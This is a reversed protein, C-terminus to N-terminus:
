NRFCKLFCGIGDVDDDPATFSFDSRKLPPTGPGASFIIVGNQVGDMDGAGGDTIEFSLSTRDDSFNAIIESESWGSVFDYHYWRTESPVSRSFYVTLNASDGPSSVRIRGNLVGLPLTDPKNASDPTSDPSVAAAGEIAADENEATLCIVSDGTETNVCKFNPQGGDGVGNQDLDTATHVEQHDPVGNENGDEGPGTTFRSGDAWGSMNGSDDYFRARFYYTEEPNLLLLPAPLGTLCASSLANLVPNSFDPKTSIQWHTATHGTNINSVFDGATLTITVPIRIDGHVPSILAPKEIGPATDLCDPVGNGDGDLDSLGCGCHGPATKMPDNPCQDNCDPTGDKDTDVDSVGCGCHGPETKDPDDPCGDASDPVDDGDSDPGERCDAIGNGNLDTDAIGCGCQGPATKGPDDPCGDESDITGDGDSDTERSELCDIVGNNDADIDPTGCGCIGPNLKFGDAPCGDCADGSGDGDMDSQDPNAITLCNDVDDAIGDGDTDMIMPTLQVDLLTSGGESVEVGTLTVPLYGPASITMDFVGPEQVMRYAGNPRSLASASASTTIRVGSVPTQGGSDTVAGKIYGVFPGIPPYIQFEYGTGTGFLTDDGNRIRIYYVGDLNCPWDWNFLIEGAPVNRSDLITGAAERLEIVPECLPGIGSMKFTYNKGAVGYFSIWDEDGADHFNHRQPRDDNIVIGGARDLADDDEFIDPGDSRFVTLERAVSANGLNDLVFISVQYEGYWPFNGYIGEYRQNQASWIMEVMDQDGSEAPPTVIAYMRDVAGIVSVGGAWFEAPTQGSLSIDPSVQNIRPDEAAMRIGFGIVFDAAVAGDIRENGVGDGSDDLQPLGDRTVGTFFGVTNRASLFADRVTGGNLVSKFFFSSFSIGPGGFLATRDSATGSIVIRSQGAAPTMAPLFAGAYDADYILVANGPIASELTDIWTDLDAASVTETANIHFISRDGPGILHIVMDQTQGIDWGTIAYELNAASPSGDIGAMFTVPSMFYVSEDAYGQQIFARYADEAAAQFVPARPDSASGGIVIVAKRTLPENVSVTTLSPSSTNGLRDRAYIAVQFVGTVNFGDFTGEFRDGGSPALDVAPLDLVPKEDGGTIYSPPRIVARVEAVGDPDTVDARIACSNNQTLTQPDSVAQIVPADNDIATGNGIYISPDPIDQVGENGVGNGDADAQPNQFQVAQGIGASAREFADAVNEGNFVMNWFFDSFSVAGQNIFSADESAAAGTLVIREKGPPPTLQDIFSGSKCADYIVIVRGPISEQVTDLWGDLQSATLVESSNLRFENDGGHDVFYVVLNDADAAWGTVASQLASVSPASDVDDPLGNGDLDLDEDESLFYVGSKTFGQYILTRYAFNACSRTADWLNDGPYPGGGAAVIAKNNSAVAINNFKQVRHNYSDTVYVSGYPDVAIGYPSNMKGPYAGPEGWEAVFNGSPDFKQIRHNQSDAVYLHDSDDVALGYPFDFQGPGNGESGWQYELRGDPRLKFIHHSADSVYVFGASDVAIGKPAEIAAADGLRSIFNGDSDFKQIRNSSDAVYVNNADDVAVGYPAMFQGDGTGSTGWQAIPTGSSDFKCIRHNMMDAVYVIDNTDVALGQPLNFSSSDAGQGGWQAIFGGEASFKQIRHNKTDAVYIEGSSNRGIGNPRSFEGANDGSGWREVFMGSSTTKQIRNNGMDAIYIYGYRDAWIRNPSVFRGDGFGTEGWKAIFEGRSTFKQIDGAPFDIDSVYVNGAHDACVGAPASFYENPNTGITSNWALPEGEHTFRALKHNATDAVLINGEPDVAVGNPERFFLPGSTGCGGWKKVFIGNNTFKQIRCNGPDAVYIFGLRDAAVGQPGEFRGDGDGSSGWKMIYDGNSDFKQIRNNNADAVYIFGDMDIAIDKPNAFQGDGSGESGWRTVFRGDTTFKQIQSNLNDVIYIYGKNDGQIAIPSTFYWPQELTPWMRDFVYNGASFATSFFGSVLVFLIIGMKKATQFMM